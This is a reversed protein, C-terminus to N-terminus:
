FDYGPNEPSFEEPPFVPNIRIRDFRYEEYLGRDDYLRIRRVVQKGTDVEIVMRRCYDNPIRIWQGSRIDGYHNIEGNNELIMHGSIKRPRAIESVNEEDTVQFPVLQFSPNDLEIVVRSGAAASNGGERFSLRDTIHDRYKNLIHELIPVLYLYGADTILHHSHKRVTRHDSRLRLNIRPFKHPRVLIRDGGDYLAQLGERPHEERYYVRLPDRALRYLGRSHVMGGEMREWQRGSYEMTRINKSSAIVRQLLALPDPNGSKQVPILLFPVACILMLIHIRTNMTDELTVIVVLKEATLQRM